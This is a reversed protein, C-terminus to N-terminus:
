EKHAALATVPIEAKAFFSPNHEAQGEVQVRAFAEEADKVHKERWKAELEAVLEKMSGSPHYSYLYAFQGPFIAYQLVPQLFVFCTFCSTPHLLLVNLCQLPFCMGELLIDLLEEV